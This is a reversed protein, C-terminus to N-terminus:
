SSCCGANVAAYIATAVVVFVRLRRRDEVLDASWSAITQGVALAVFALSIATMAIALIRPDLLHAPALVLCNVLSSRRLRPGHCSM